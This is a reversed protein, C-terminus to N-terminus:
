VTRIVDRNSYLNYLLYTNMGAGAYVGIHGEYTESDYGADELAEWACELFLRHQPDIVEAERPNIGFFPAAFLEIDDLAGAARVYNPHSLTASDLGASSLEEDTFFSISEVGDRLNQWFEKTNRAGPFRGAMGIIAIDEGRIDETSSGGM